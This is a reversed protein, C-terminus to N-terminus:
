LESIRRYDENSLLEKEIDEDMDEQDLEKYSFFSSDLVDDIETDDNRDNDRENM